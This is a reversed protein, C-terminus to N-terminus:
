GNGADGFGDAAVKDARGNSMEIEAIQVLRTGPDARICWFLLGFCMPSREDSVTLCSRRHDFREDGDKNDACDTNTEAIERVFRCQKRNQQWDSGQQGQNRQREPRDGPNMAAANLLGCVCSGAAEDIM